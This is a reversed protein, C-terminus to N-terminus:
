IIVPMSIVVAVSLEFLALFGLASLRGIILLEMLIYCIALLYGTRESACCLGSSVEM